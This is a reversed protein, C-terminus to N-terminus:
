VYLSQNIAVYKSLLIPIQKLKSLLEIYNHEEALIEMENSINIIKIISKIFEGIVIGKEYFIRQLIEKCQVINQASAWEMLYSCMDYSIDNLTHSEYKSYLEDIDSLIAKINVDSIAEDKSISKYDDNILTNTFSSFIGILQIPTFKDLRLNILIDAFVLSNVEKLNAAIKGKPTLILNPTLFKEQILFQQVYDIEHKIFTETNSFSKVLNDKQILIDLYGIYINLDTQINPYSDEINKKEKLLEKKKKNQIFEFSDKISIYKIIIELPTKMNDGASKAILLRQDILEIDHQLMNLEKEIDVQIMSKKCFDIIEKQTSLTSALNLILNYNIKFQSILKQPSGDLMNRYSVLDIDKFLNHLHIVTGVSDIGLRGARGSMQTFEHSKLIRTNSGDFKNLDTFLVTKIPFNVGMAFTETTLLLKIYGKGLFLEVIERLIAMMGAHHKGIGKRLLGILEIYEPLNLYEEFNSLKKRIIHEAEKGVDHTPNEEGFLNQTIEPAIIEIQKRSLIFCIAPLLSHEVCYSLVTNLVFPMKMRIQNSEFLTLIKKQQYYLQENFKADVTFIPHLKNCYSEIQKFMPDAKSIHKYISQTTTIFNYHILPVARKATSAIYVEKLDINQAYRNEIWSAIKEPKDLTASLMLLQISNPLMMLTSEWVDGRHPDNIYHFEDFVVCGLNTILSQESNNLKSLNNALIETTVILLSADPNVKFDGTLIGISINPYKLMLNYYMQNSLSKIPSCYIVKKNKMTFYKVAFEFCTSKGCGTAATILAHNGTVLAEISYKQFSNLEYPFGIFYESYLTNSEPYINSCIKVM